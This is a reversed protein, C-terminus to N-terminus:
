RPLHKMGHLESLARYHAENKPDLQNRVQRRQEARERKTFLSEAKIIKREVGKYSM